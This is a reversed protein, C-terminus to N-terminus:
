AALESLYTSSICPSVWYSLYSPNSVYSIIYYQMYHRRYVTCFYTHEIIITFQNYLNSILNNLKIFIKELM